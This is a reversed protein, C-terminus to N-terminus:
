YVYGLLNVNGKTSEMIKWLLILQGIKFNSWTQFTFM